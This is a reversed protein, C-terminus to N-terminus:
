DGKSYLPHYEIHIKDGFTNKLKSFIKIIWYKRGVGYVMKEKRSVSIDAYGLLRNAVAEYIGYRKGTYGSEDNIYIKFEIFGSM